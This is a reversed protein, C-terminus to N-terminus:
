SITLGDNDLCVCPCYLHSNEQGLVEVQPWRIDIYNIELTDPDVGEREIILDVHKKFDTWNMAEDM